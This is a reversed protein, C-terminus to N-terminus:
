RVDYHLFSVFAAAFLVLNCLVLLGIDWIALKLSQGVAPVREQFQPVASFDVPRKSIAEWNEVAYRFPFLLHLSDPNEADKDLIFTKLADQYDRIEWYLRAYREVGTGAITEAAQQYIVVPSLRAIRRGARAQALMRHHQDEHVREVAEVFASWFHAAAPPNNGPHDREPWAEFANEGYKGAQMDAYVAEKAEVARRRFETLSPARHYTDSLIRGLSPVLLVFIVWVALLIVIGTAPHATRSSVFLGALAFLSLYL